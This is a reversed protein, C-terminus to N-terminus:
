MRRRRTGILGALGLLALAGPSPVQAIEFYFNDMGYGDFQTGDPMFNDREFVIQSIGSASEVGFFIVNGTDQPTTAITHHNGLDDTYWLSGEGWDGWDTIHLGFRSVAQDFDITVKMGTAAVHIFRDGATAHASGIPTDWVSLSDEATSITMNDLQLSSHQRSVNDVPLGGVDDNIMFPNETLFSDISNYVVFSASATSTAVAIALGAIALGCRPNTFM